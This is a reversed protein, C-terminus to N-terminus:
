FHEVLHEIAMNIFYTRQDRILTLHCGYRTFIQEYLFKATITAISIKLACAEVWKSAYFIAV